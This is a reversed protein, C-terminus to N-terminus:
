AIARQQATCRLMDTLARMRRDDDDTQHDFGLLHLIGHALLHQLEQELTVGHELAQRNCTELSLVVDGLTHSTLSWRTDQQAFALVDTPKDKGRFERNLRHMTADDCVVLSLEYSELGLANLMHTAARQVLRLAIKFPAIKHAFPAIKHARNENDLMCTAAIPMACLNWSETTAALM